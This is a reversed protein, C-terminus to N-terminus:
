RFQSEVGEATGVGRGHMISEGCFSVPAATRGFPMAVFELRIAPRYLLAGGTNNDQEQREVTNRM